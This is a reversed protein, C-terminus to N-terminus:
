EAEVEWDEPPEEGGGIVNTPLEVRAVALPLGPPAVHGPVAPLTQPATADVAATLAEWSAADSAAAAAM